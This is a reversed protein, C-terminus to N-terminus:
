VAWMQMLTNRRSKLGAGNLTFKELEQATALLNGETRQALLQCAEPTIKLGLTQSRQNIWRGMQHAELPFNGHM